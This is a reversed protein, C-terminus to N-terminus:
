RKLRKVTEAAAMGCNGNVTKGNVEQEHLTVKGHDSMPGAIKVLASQLLPSFLQARLEVGGFRGETQDEHTRLEESLGRLNELNEANM